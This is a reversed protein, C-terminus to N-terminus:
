DARMGRYRRRRPRAHASNGDRQPRAHNNSQAVAPKPAPAANPDGGSVPIRTGLVKEIDRLLPKEEPDVLSVASGSAGARGTRGIRHVYQEPVNPLEFNVVHSVGEVDIGRAALDTAVLVPTTGARFSALARERANQSKNGHIALAEIGSKTLQEAVRNAGHKTRTFVIARDIGSTRLIRELTARKEAKACFYVSHSVTEAATAQPTVAVKVPKTLVSAALEAIPGPM